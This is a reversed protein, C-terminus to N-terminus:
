AASALVHALGTLEFAHRVPGDDAQVALEYGQRPADNHMGLVATLGTSDIFDVERFDLVVRTAEPQAERLAARLDDLTGLDVEGRLRITVLGDDGRDLEYELIHDDEGM